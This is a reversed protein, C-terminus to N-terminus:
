KKGSHNRFKKNFLLISEITNVLKCWWVSKSDNRGTHKLPLLKRCIQSLWRPGVPRGQSQRHKAKRTYLTSLNEKYCTFTRQKTYWPLGSNPEVFTRGDQCLIGDIGRAETASVSPYRSQIPSHLFTNQSCCTSSENLTPALIMTYFNQRGLM